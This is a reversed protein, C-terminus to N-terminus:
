HSVGIGGVRKCTHDRFESKKSSTASSHPGTTLTTSRVRNLPNETHCIKMVQLTRSTAQLWVKQTKSANQLDKAHSPSPKFGQTAECVIKLRRPPPESGDQLRRSPTRSADHLRNPAEQFGKEQDEARYRAMTLEKDIQLM